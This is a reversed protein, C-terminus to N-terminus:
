KILKFKKQASSYEFWQVKDARSKRKREYDYQTGTTVLKLKCMGSDASFSLKTENSYSERESIAAGENDGYIQYSFVNKFSPIEFSISNTEISGMGTFSPELVLFCFRNGVIEIHYDSKEGWTGYEGFNRNLNDLHWKGEEKHFAALSFMAGCSHGAIEREYESYWYTTFIALACDLGDKSFYFLSDLNTHCFNDTSILFNKTEAISPKWLGIKDDIFHKVGFLRGLLYKENLHVFPKLTNVPRDDFISDVVFSRSSLTSILEKNYISKHQFVRKYYKSFKELVFLSNYKVFEAYGLVDGSNNNSNGNQGKTRFLVLALTDGQNRKFGVITDIVTHCYHDASIVLRCSDEIDPLWSGEKGDIHTANFLYKLILQNSLSKFKLEHNNIIPLSDSEDVVPIEIKVEKHIPKPKFTFHQYAMGALCFTFVVVLISFLYKM